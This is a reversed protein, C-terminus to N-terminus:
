PQGFERELIEEPDELYHEKIFGSNRDRIPMLHGQVVRTVKESHQRNGSNSGHRSRYTSAVDRPSGSTEKLQEDEYTSRKPTIYLMKTPIMVGNYDTQNTVVLQM